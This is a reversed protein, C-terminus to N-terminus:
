GDVGYERLKRWLTTRGIGLVEAAEVHHGGTAQLVRLIHEREVEALTPLRMPKPPAAEVPQACSVTPPLHEPRIEGGSAMVSGHTVANLLERVNGPWRWRLLCQEAEPSLAGPYQLKKLFSEALPLIDEVRERLPPLHLTVVNLRYYLDERFTGAAVRAALDQHTASVLRVDITHTQTDGVRRVEGDQLVRLLKAQLPLPMEAVEDLFLTGKHAAEVLGVRAGQAGTFAGRAHGFLESELLESPIAAVNVAVFPGESRSSNAHLLRAVVDKGTGTEGQLLAAADSRAVLAGRRLLAEMAPSAAVLKRCRLTGTLRGQARCTDCPNGPREFPTACAAPSAM